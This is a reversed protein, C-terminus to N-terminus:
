RRRPIRKSDSQPSRRSPSTKRAITRKARTVRRSLGDTRATSAAKVAFEGGGLLSRSSSTRRESAVRGTRVSRTGGFNPLRSRWNRRRISSTAYETGSTRTVPVAARAPAPAHSAGYRSISLLIGVGAMCALLSSGGYSIFPLTLGSYPLVALNVGMNVFAQLTIWATIGIGLIQGFADGSRQAIRWGRVAFAAYLLIVGVTGVLGLEYGIVAFISDTFPLQVLSQGSGLGVGLVGGRSLASLASQVQDSGATPDQLFSVYDSVRQSAYGFETVALVFTGTTIVLIILLQKSDAGAVFFMLLATSVILATTDFDPQLVILLAVMGLLIAFPALGDSVAKLRNGKSSLWYAIYIIITVKAIESPQVSTGFLHRRSGLNDTGFILVALLVIVTLAMLILSLRKLITFDTFAIVVMTVFGAAVWQLQRLLYYTPTEFFRNSQMFSASFVMVLGLGILSGVILLLWIDYQGVATGVGARPASTPKKSRKTPTKPTAM